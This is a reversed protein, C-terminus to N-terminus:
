VVPIKVTFISGTGPQSEVDIIGKHAQIISYSVSLNLGGGQNIEENTASFPDFIREIKEKAMGQGTDEVKVKIYKQDHAKEITTSIKVQGQESQSALCATFLINSLAQHMQGYDIAIKPLYNNYKTIITVQNLNPQTKINVLVEDILTNINYKMKVTEPPQAFYTLNEMIRVCRFIEQEILSLEKGGLTRIAENQQLLQALGMIGLLPNNIEHALGAALKGIAALRAHQTLKEHLFKKERIDEIFGALGIVSCTSNKLIFTSLNIPIKDGNAAMAETETGICKGERMTVELQSAGLPILFSLSKGRLEEDSYGVLQRFAVNYTVVYGQNDTTFIPEQSQSVINALYDIQEQRQKRKTIDHIICAHGIPVGKKDKILSIALMINFYSGDKKRSTVEGIWRGKQNVIDTIKSSLDEKDTISGQGFISDHKGILEPASQYGFLKMGAPNVYQIIRDLDIIMIADFSNEVMQQYRAIERELKIRKSVDRVIEIAAVIRGSEDKKPSAKIEMFRGLKDLSIGIASKGTKFTKRVPCWPCIEERSNFVQYCSRGLIKGPYQERMFKNLYQVRYHRDIIAIGDASGEFIEELKNREKLLAEEYRRLATIDSFIASFGQIKNKADKVVSATISIPVTKGDKAVAKTTYNKIFGKTIIKEGLTKLQKYKGQLLLKSVSQDIMERAKYGFLEEAGKNWFSFRGRSTVAIIADRSVRSINALFQEQEFLKATNNYKETIDRVIEVVKKRGDSDRIPFAEIEYVQGHKDKITTTEFYRHHKKIIERVPCLHCPYNQHSITQYCKKGIQNGFHSRLSQNMYEIQYNQNVVMIGENMNALVLDLSAKSLMQSRSLFM